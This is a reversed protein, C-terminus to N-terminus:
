DGGKWGVEKREVKVIKNMQPFMISKSIINELMAFTVRVRNDNFYIKM